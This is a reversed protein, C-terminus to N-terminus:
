LIKMLDRYNERIALRFKRMDEPLGNLRATNMDTLLVPIRPIMKDMKRKPRKPLLDECERYLNWLTIWFDEEDISDSGTNLENWDRKLEDIKIRCSPSQALDEAEKNVPNFIMGDPSNMFLIPTIFDKPATEPDVLIRHRVKQINEDIPIKLLNKYFEQSFLNATKNTISYRMAIVSPIGIKILESALGTFAKNTSLMAGQCANLVILGISNQNQFLEGIREHDYPLSKGERGELVLYGRGDKYVGHGIFHIVNYQDNNLYEIIRPVEGIRVLDFKIIGSNIEDRLAEVINEIEREVQVAALGLKSPNSGIILVKLPKGFNMKDLQKPGLFRTLTTKVSTAIYKNDLYLTEWPYASIEPSEINLRIRISKNANKRARHLHNRINETFLSNALHEGIKKIYNKDVKVNEDELQNVAYEIVDEDPEFKSTESTDDFKAIVDWNKKMIIHYDIYEM